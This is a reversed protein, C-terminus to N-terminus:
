TPNYVSAHTDRMYIVGTILTVELTVFFVVVVPKVQERERETEIKRVIMVHLLVRTVRAVHQM